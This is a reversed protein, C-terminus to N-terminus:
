TYKHLYMNSQQSMESIFNGLCKILSANDRVSADSIYRVEKDGKLHNYHHKPYICPIFTRIELWLRLFQIDDYRLLSSTAIACCILRHHRLLALVIIGPGLSAGTDAMAAVALARDSPSWRNGNGEKSTGARKEWPSFLIHILTVSNEGVEGM